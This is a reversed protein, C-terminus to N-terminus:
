LSTIQFDLGDNVIDVSVVAHSLSYLLKEVETNGRKSFMILRSDNNITNIASIFSNWFQETFRMSFGKRDSLFINSAGIIFIDLKRFKMSDAFIESAMQDGLNAAHRSDGIIARDINGIELLTSNKCNSSVQRAIDEYGFNYLVIASRGDRCDYHSIISELLSERTKISVIPLKSVSDRFISWQKGESLVPESQLSIQMPDNIEVM